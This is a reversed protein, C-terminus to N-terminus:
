GFADAMVEHAPIIERVWKGEVYVYVSRGIAWAILPMPLGVGIRALLRDLKVTLRILRGFRVPLQQTMQAM